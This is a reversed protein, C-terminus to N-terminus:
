PGRRIRETWDKLVVSIRPEFVGTRAKWRRYSDETSTTAHFGHDIGDLALYLGKGPRARNVIDTILQHDAETAVFENKGWIALVHATGKAWYSPLNQRALQTWFTIARGSIRDEPALQGVIARLDPHARVVEEPMKREILLYHLARALDRMMADISAPDGGELVAQRRWNELFYETWTKVVTGYVAVGKVPFEAALIPAFVGGMSHGVIFVDEQDVFEYRPLSRLAERYADLETAFDLDAAPGGESDGVGPKDVRVTVYGSAAFERLIRSYPQLGSPPEDLSGLGAGKVLFVVPHKGSAHPKTVITRIRAGRSV